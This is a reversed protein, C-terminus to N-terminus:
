RRRRTGAAKTKAKTKPKRSAERAIRAQVLRRVLSAPIPKEPTFRITGRSTEYGELEDAFEEAVGGPYLSCHNRAAGFWIIVRGDQRFAPIGYSICEEARPFAAHITKRLKQLASKKDAPLKALYADITGGRTKTGTRV